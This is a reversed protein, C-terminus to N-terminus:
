ILRVPYPLGDVAFDYFQVSPGCQDPTDQACPGLGDAGQGDMWQMDPASWYSVIPTMGAELAETLEVDSGQGNFSYSATEVSAELTCGNQSVKTTMARLLMKGGRNETPFSVEVQFPQTTDICSAHPGYEEKTWDRVNNWGAGGGGYGTGMGSGDNAMHLVSHFAHRNAEQLDIESCRVGCVDNADCYFDKCGSEEPNQALSALYFAANCGCTAAALNTTWSIRKNLLNLASYTSHAYKGPECGNSFYTRGFMEVDIVGNDVKVEGAPDFPVNWIANTLQISSTSGSEALSISGPCIAGEAGPMAATAGALKLVVGMLLVKSM